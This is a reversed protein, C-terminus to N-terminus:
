AAEKVSVVTEVKTGADFGIVDSVPKSNKVIDAIQYREIGIDQLLKDSMMSLQRVAVRRANWNKVHQVIQGIFGVISKSAKSNRSVEEDVANSYNKLDVINSM